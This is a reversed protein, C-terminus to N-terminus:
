FMVDNQGAETKNKTITNVNQPERNKKLCKRESAIDEEEEKEKNEKFLLTTKTLQVNNMM